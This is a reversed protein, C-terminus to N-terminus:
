VPRQKRSDKGFVNVGNRELYKVPDITEKKSYAGPVRPNMQLHLHAGTSNGQNGQPAIPTGASIRFGVKIYPKLRNKYFHAYGVHMGNDCKIWVYNTRPFAGGLANSNPKRGYSLREVTGDCVSVFDWGNEGGGSMDYGYHPKGSPYRGYPASPRVIGKMKEPIPSVWKGVAPPLGAVEDDSTSVSPDAYADGTEEDDEENIIQSIQYDVLFAPMALLSENQAQEAPTQDAYDPNDKALQEASSCVNEGNENKFCTPKYKKATPKFPEIVCGAANFLYDGSSPNGCSTMYDHLPTDKKVIEKDVLDQVTYDDKIEKDDSQDLWRSVRNIAAETGIANQEQTMNPCPLGSMGIMPTVDRGDVITKMGIKDAYSCSNKYSSADLASATGSFSLAIGPVNLINSITSTLNNGYSGNRIMAIRTKYVLSGLFTYRSSTDFPSLAAIDMEKEFQDNERKLRLASDMGDSSVAPLFRSLGGISFFASASVAIADGLDKGRAGVLDKNKAIAELLNSTLHTITKDAAKEVAYNIAWQSAVKIVSLLGGSAAALSAEVAMASYMAAPSLIVNCSSETKAEIGRTAKFAKNNLIGIGPMFKSAKLNKNEIGMLSQLYKSDLASGPKGDKGKVRETLATGVVNVAEPSLRENKLASFKMKDSPSGIINIFLPAIQLLQVGAVAGSVLRPVKTAVCAGAVATYIIGGKKLKGLHKGLKAKVNGSLGRIKDAGPLKGTISKLRKGLKMKNKLNKIIGGNRDINFPGFVKRQMHKGAWAKFRMNFAGGVGWVARALARNEKNTLFGKLHKAQITATSGDPKTVRYHSPNKDPYGNKKLKLPKSDRGPGDVAIIGKKALRRLGKNSIKGMKCKIKPGECVGPSKTMFGLVKPFRRSLVTSTSDNNYTISDTIFPLMGGGSFLMSLLILGSAILGGVGAKGKNLGAWVIAKNPLDKISGLKGARGRGSRGSKGYGSNPKPEYFGNNSSEKDKLIDQAKSDKSKSNKFDDKLGSEIQDWAAQEAANLPREPTDVSQDQRDKLGTAM